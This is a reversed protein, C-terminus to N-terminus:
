EESISDDESSSKLEGDSEDSMPEQEDKKEENMTQAFSTPISQQINLETKKPGSL